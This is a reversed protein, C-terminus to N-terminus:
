IKLYVLFYLYHRFVVLILLFLLFFQFHCEFENAFPFNVVDGNEREFTYTQNTVIGDKWISVRTVYAFDEDDWYILERSKARMKKSGDYLNVYETAALTWEENEWVSYKTNTKGIDIRVKEDMVFYISSALFVVVLFAGLIKKNVM